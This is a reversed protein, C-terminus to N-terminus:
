FCKMKQPARRHRSLALSIARAINEEIEHRLEHEDSLYNYKATAIPGLKEEGNNLHISLILFWYKKAITTDEHLYWKLSYSKIANLSIVTKEDLFHLALTNWTIELDQFEFVVQEIINAPSGSSCGNALLLRLSSNM